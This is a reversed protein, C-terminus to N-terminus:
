DPFASDLNPSKAPGRGGPRPAAPRAAPKRRTPAAAPDPRAAAPAAPAPAAPPPAAPPQDAPGRASAPAAAAPAPAPVATTLAPAAPVPAPAPAPRLLWWAAFAAALAVSVAVGVLMLRSTSAAAPSPARDPELRAALAGLAPQPRTPARDRAALIALPNAPEPARPPPAAPPPAAPAVAPIRGAEPAPGLAVTAGPDPQPVNPDTRPRAPQAPESEDLWSPRRVRRREIANAAEQALEAGQSRAAEWAELQPEFLEAMFRGLHLSSCPLRRERAFDELDAQLEEATAYRDAPRRALARQVIVELEPPYGPAVSSPPPADQEVIMKLVDFESRGHFLRRNTTLEWLLIGAAFIDSRRDVAESRAQEPSMYRIKGKLTGYETSTSRTAAKAIGFDVVKVGGDYTVFVNQPSVDRHVIGLPQGDFGRKEHAYHLGACVNMMITLAHELPLGRGAASLTRMLGSVDEGHLYEMAFFYDGEVAGVDFVQVVNTHHLTAALRVEDLFMRVVEPQEALHPLIRKIVVLKEFGEIGTVRALYIEAMGGTAIPRIIEYKGLRVLGDTAGV